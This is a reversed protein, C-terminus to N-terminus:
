LKFCDEHEDLLTMLWWGSCACCCLSPVTAPLIGHTLWCANHQHSIAQFCVFLDLHCNPRWFVDPMSNTNGHAASHFLQVWLGRLFSMTCRGDILWSCLYVVTKLVFLGFFDDLRLVPSPRHDQYDILWSSFVQVGFGCCFTMIICFIALVCHLWTILKYGRASGVCLWPM